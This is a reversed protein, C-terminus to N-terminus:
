GSEKVKVKKKLKHKKREPNYGNKLLLEVFTSKKLWTLPLLDFLCLFCTVSILLYISIEQFLLALEKLEEDFYIQVSAYGFYLNFNLLIFLFNCILELCYFVKSVFAEATSEWVILIIM